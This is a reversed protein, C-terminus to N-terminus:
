ESDNDVASWSYILVERSKVFILHHTQGSAYGM